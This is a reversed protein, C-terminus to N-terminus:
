PPRRRLHLRYLQPRIKEAGPFLAAPASAKPIRAALKSLLRFVGSLHKEELEREITTKLLQMLRPVSMIVYIDEESLAEMIASPKLTGCTSSLPAM